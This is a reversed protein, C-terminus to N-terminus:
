LTAPAVALPKGKFFVLPPSWPLAADGESSLAPQRV